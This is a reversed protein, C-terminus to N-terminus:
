VEQEKSKEYAFANKDVAKTAGRVAKDGWEFPKFSLSGIAIGGVAAARKHKRLFEAVARTDDSYIPKKTKPDVALTENLVRGRTKKNFGFFGGIGDLVGQGLKRGAKGSQIRKLRSEGAKTADINAREVAKGRQAIAQLQEESRGIFPLKDRFGGGAAANKGEAIVKDAGAKVAKGYETAGSKMMWNGLRNGNKGAIQKGYTMYMDNINKRLGVPGVRRALAVTGITAATGLAVKGLVSGKKKKGENQYQYNETYQRQEQEKAQDKLQKREGLYSIGNVGAFGLTIGTGWKNLKNKGTTPDTTIFQEKFGKKYENGLDKLVSTKNIKQGASNLGHSLNKFGKGLYGKRAALITGGVAVAGTVAKRIAKKKKKPDKQPQPLPAGGTIKKRDAQIAKDVLYGGAAMTTGMALGTGLKKVIQNGGGTNNLVKGFEYVVQGGRALNKGVNALLAPASYMAITPTTQTLNTAANALANTTNGSTGSKKVAKALNNVAEANKKSIEAQSKAMRKQERQQAKFQEEQAKMNGKNQIGGQIMQAGTGVTQVGMMTAMGSGTTLDKAIFKGAKAIIAPAVFEKQKFKIM